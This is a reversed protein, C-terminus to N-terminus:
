KCKQKHRALEQADANSHPKPPAPAHVWDVPLMRAAGQEGRLAMSTQVFRQARVLNTHFPPSLPDRTYKAGHVKKGSKRIRTDDLAVVADGQQQSLHGRVVEFLRQPDARGHGYMRYDASWDEFQQ